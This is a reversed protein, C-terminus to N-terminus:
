NSSTKKKPSSTTSAGEALLNEILTRLKVPDQIEGEGKEATQSRIMGKRDILALQPVYWMAMIAFGQFQPVYDMNKYGVPFTVQFDRVFDPVLMQAMPNIAIGIAQFGKPGLENYLKSIVRSSQQCHPCDTKLFMVLTVKGRYSSIKVPPANVMDISLDIAPRPVSAATLAVASVALLSALKRM